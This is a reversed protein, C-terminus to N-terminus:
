VTTFCIDSKLAGHVKEFKDIDIIPRMEVGDGSENNKLVYWRIPRSKVYVAVLRDKDFYEPKTTDVVSQLLDGLQDEIVLDLYKEPLQSLINSDEPLNQIYGTTAKEGYIPILITPKDTEKSVRKSLERMFSIEDEIPSGPNPIKDFLKHIYPTLIELTEPDNNLARKENQDGQVFGNIHHVNLLRKSFAKLGYESMIEDAKGFTESGFCVSVWIYSIQSKKRSKKGAKNKYNTKVSFGYSERNNSTISPKLLTPKNENETSVLNGGESVFIYKPYDSRVADDKDYCQVWKEKYPIPITIWDKIRQDWVKGCEGQEDKIFLKDFRDKYDKYTVVAM